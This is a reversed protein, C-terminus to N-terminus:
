TQTADVLQKQSLQFTLLGFVCWINRVLAVSSLTIVLIIFTEFVNHRVIKNMLQQLSIWRSKWISKEKSPFGPSGSKKEKRETTSSDSSMEFDRVDQTTTSQTSNTNQL